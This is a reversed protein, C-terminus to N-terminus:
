LPPFFLLSTSAKLRRAILLSSFVKPQFSSTLFPLLAGVERDELVCCPLAPKSLALLRPGAKASGGRMPVRSNRGREPDLTVMPPEKQSGLGAACM